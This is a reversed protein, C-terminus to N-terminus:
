PDDFVATIMRFGLTVCVFQECSSVVFDEFFDTLFGSLEHHGAFVISGILDSTLGSIQDEVHLHCQGM